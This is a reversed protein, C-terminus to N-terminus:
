RQALSVTTDVHFSFPSIGRSGLRTILGQINPPGRIGEFGFRSHKM